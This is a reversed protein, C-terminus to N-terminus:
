ALIDQMSTRGGVKSMAPHGSNAELAKGDRSQSLPSLQRRRVISLRGSEVAKKRGKPMKVRFPVVKERGDSPKAKGDMEEEVMAAFDEMNKTAALGLWRKGFRKSEPLDMAIQSPM